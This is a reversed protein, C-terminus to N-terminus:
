RIISLKNEYTLTNQKLLEHLSPYPLYEMVLYSCETNTDIYLKYTRVILPNNLKLTNLFTQKMIGM